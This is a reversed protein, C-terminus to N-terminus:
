LKVKELKKPCIFYCVDKDKYIRVEKHKNGCLPCYFDKKLKNANLDIKKNQVQEVFNEIDSKHFLFSKGLKIPKLYGEQVFEYIKSGKPGLRLFAKAEKTTLLNM